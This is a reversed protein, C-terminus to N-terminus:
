NKFFVTTRKVYHLEKKKGLHMQQKKSRHYHWEKTSFLLNWAKPRDGLFELLGTTTLIFYNSYYPHSILIPIADTM